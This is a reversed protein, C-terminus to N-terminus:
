IWPTIAMEYGCVSMNQCAVFLVLGATDDNYTFPLTQRYRHRLQSMNRHINHLRTLENENNPRSLASLRRFSGFRIPRYLAPNSIRRRISSSSTTPLNNNTSASNNRSHCLNLLETTLRCRRGSPASYSPESNTPAAHNDASVSNSPTSSNGSGSEIDSNSSSADMASMIRRSAANIRSQALQRLTIGSREARTNNSENLCTTNPPQNIGSTQHRFRRQQDNLNRVRDSLRRTIDTVRRDLQNLHELRRDLQVCLNSM